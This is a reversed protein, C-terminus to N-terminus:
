PDIQGWLSERKHVDVDSASDVYVVTYEIGLINVKEPLKM